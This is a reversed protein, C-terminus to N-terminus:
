GRAGTGPKEMNNKISIYRNTYKKKYLLFVVYMYKKTWGDHNSEGGKKQVLRVNQLIYWIYWIGCWRQSYVLEEDANCRGGGGGLYFISTAVPLKKKGCVFLYSM